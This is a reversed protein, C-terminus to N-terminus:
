EEDKVRKIKAGLNMFKNEIHEYGRDIHHINIIETLGDAVLGAIILAAGARLDTAQVVTGKLKDTGIIRAQKKTFEINAGMRNIENVYKFRDESVGEVVTSEGILTSLLVTMPQQLDTPFGPYPLTQINVPILERNYFVRMSDGYEEIGLGMEKLKATIPELHKPIIDDIIIDGKTAAAAIMYTGAEIQDPIVRYTCGTLEKIGNIRIVDTGAGKIDAGMSNLFNATDVIHPEKAANEITTRGEAYVAALMINITAGVSVKDLYIKNGTLKDARVNVRGDPTIDVTAGLAEFGKIHQDIPREGIDCGGPLLSSSSKFRGLGAGLLYYSARMKKSLGNKLYCGEVNTSDVYITTDDIYRAEAGLERLIDLFVNVDEINPVNQITCKGPCLLTAPIIAVAANKFGGINVKGKLKSGGEIVFKSM